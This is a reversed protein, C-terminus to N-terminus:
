KNAAQYALLYNIYLQISLQPCCSPLSHLSAASTKSFTFDSQWRHSTCLKALFVSPSELLPQLGQWVCFGTPVLSGSCPKFKCSSLCPWGVSSSTILWTVCVWCLLWSLHLLHIPGHCAPSIVRWSGTGIIVFDLPDSKSFCARLKVDETEMQHGYYCLSNGSSHVTVVQFLSWTSTLSIKLTLLLESPYSCKRVGVLLTKSLQQYAGTGETKKYM